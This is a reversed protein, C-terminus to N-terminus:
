DKLRNKHVTEVPSHRTGNFTQQRIVDIGVVALAHQNRSAALDEALCSSHFCEALRSKGHGKVTQDHGVSIGDTEVLELAEILDAVGPQTILHVVVVGADKACRERKADNARRALRSCSAHESLRASVAKAFAESLAERLGRLLDEVAEQVE